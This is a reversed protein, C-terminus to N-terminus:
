FHLLRREYEELYPRNIEYRKELNRIVNQVIHEMLPRLIQHKNDTVFQQQPNYNGDTRRDSHAAYSKPTMSRAHEVSYVYVVGNEIRYAFYWGTDSREVTYGKWKPLTKKTKFLQGSGVKEVEDYVEIVKNTSDWFEHEKEANDYFEKIKEYVWNNVKVQM